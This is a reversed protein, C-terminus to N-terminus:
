GIQSINISDIQCESFVPNTICEIKIEGISPIDERNIKKLTNKYDIIFDSKFIINIGKEIVNRLATVDKQENLYGFYYTKQIEYSILFNDIYKKKVM